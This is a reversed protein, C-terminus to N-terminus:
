RYPQVAKAAQTGGVDGPLILEPLGRRKPLFDRM